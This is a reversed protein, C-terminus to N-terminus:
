CYNLFRLVPYTFLRTLKKYLKCKLFIKLHFIYLFASFMNVQLAEEDSSKYAVFPIRFSLAFSM